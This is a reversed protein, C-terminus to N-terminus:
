LNFFDLFPNWGAKQNSLCVVRDMWNEMKWKGNWDEIKLEFGFGGM